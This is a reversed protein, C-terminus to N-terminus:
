SELVKWGLGWNISLHIEHTYLWLHIHHKECALSPCLALFVDSHSPSSSVAKQSHTKGHFM